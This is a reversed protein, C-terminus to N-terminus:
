SSISSDLIRVTRCASPDIMIQSAAPVTMETILYICFLFATKAVNIAASSNAVEAVELDREPTSVLEIFIALTRSSIPAKPNNTKALNKTAPNENVLNNFFFIM